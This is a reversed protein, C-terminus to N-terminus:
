HRQSVCSLKAKSQSREFVSFPMEKGAFSLLRLIKSNLQISEKKEPNEAADALAKKFEDNKLLELLKELVKKQSSGARVVKRIVCHRM